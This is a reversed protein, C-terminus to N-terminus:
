HGHEHSLQPRLLHCLDIWTCVSCSVASLCAPCDSYQQWHWRFRRDVSTASSVIYFGWITISTDPEVESAYLLVRSDFLLKEYNSYASMQWTLLKPLHDKFARMKRAPIYFSLVEERDLRHQKELDSTESIKQDPQYDNDTERQM